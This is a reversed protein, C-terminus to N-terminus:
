GTPVGGILAEERLDSGFTLVQGPLSSSEFTSSRGTPGLTPGVPEREPVTSACHLGAGLFTRTVVTRAHGSHHTNV